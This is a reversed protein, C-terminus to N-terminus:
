DLIEPLHDDGDSDDHGDNGITGGRLFAFFL